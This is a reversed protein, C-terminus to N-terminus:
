LLFGRWSVGLLVGFREGLFNGTDLALSSHLRIGQEPVLLYTTEVMASYQDRRLESRPITELNPDPPNESNIFCSGTIIQDSCIGYNRSYTAVARYQLRDSLWGDFGLHHAIIMNNEMRNNESDFTLLPNGIVNDNFTWGSRYLSNWYYNARGRPFNGQSDQQITNMFEYLVGSFLSRSGDIKRFGLGYMGDWFSRLRLSVTDELYIMRYGLLNFSGFQYNLALDYAAVSNGLKNIRDVPAANSDDDPGQGFVVNLYDGFGQPLRGLTPHTGGWQVNHVFGATASFQEINFKLYASKQHVFPSEVFRDDELKGDSYHGKVQVVGNTFPVNVFRTMDISIKPIPTANRSQMMSGTSLETMNLGITDYFRGVTLRFVGLQLSGYLQQFHITNGTDSLRSSLRAGASVDLNGDTNERFPMTVELSNINNFSSGAQILGDTNAYHWFPTETGTGTFLVSADYAVPRNKFLGTEQAHTGAAVLLFVFVPLITKRCFDSIFFSM